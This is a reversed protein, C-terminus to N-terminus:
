TSSNYKSNSYICGTQMFKSDRDWLRYVSFTIIAKIVMRYTLSARLGQSADVREMICAMRCKECFSQSTTWPQHQDTTSKLGISYWGRKEHSPWKALRVFIPNIGRTPGTTAASTVLPSSARIANVVSM